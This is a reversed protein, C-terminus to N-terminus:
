AEDELIEWHRGFKIDEHETVTFYKKLFTGNVPPTQERLASTFGLFDGLLWADNGNDTVGCAVLHSATQEPRPSLDPSRNSKNRASNQRRLGASSAM